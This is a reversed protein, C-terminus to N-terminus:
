KSQMKERAFPFNERDLCQWDEVSCAPARQNSITHRHEDM